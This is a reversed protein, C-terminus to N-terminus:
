SCGFKGNYQKIKQIMPRAVSDISCVLTFIKFNRVTDEGPLLIDIGEDHLICLEKIFPQLFNNMDPKVPSFWLGTLIINQRQEYYPLENIMVQIPWVSIKSSNFIQIGDTNWQITLFYQDANMNKLEKYFSGNTVDSGNSQWTLKKSLDSELLKRIQIGLPLTLFYHSTDDLIKFVNEHTCKLCIIIRDATAENHNDLISNCKECFYHTCPSTINHNNFRKLLNLFFIKIPTNAYSM